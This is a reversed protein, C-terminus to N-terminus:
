LAIGRVEFGCCVDLVGLSVSQVAVGVGGTCRDVVVEGGDDPPRPLCPFCDSSRGWGGKPQAVRSKLPRGGFVQADWTSLAKLGFLM